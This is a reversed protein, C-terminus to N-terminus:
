AQHRPSEELRAKLHQCLTDGGPTSLPHQAPPRPHWRCSLEQPLHVMCSPQCSCPLSARGQGVLQLHMSLEALYHRAKGHSLKGWPMERGLPCPTLRGASHLHPRQAAEGMDYNPM